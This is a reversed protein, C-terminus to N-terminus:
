SRRVIFVGYPGRMCEGIVNSSITSNTAIIAAANRSPENLRQIRAPSTLREKQIM